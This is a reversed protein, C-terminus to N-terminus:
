LAFVLACLTHKLQVPYSIEQFEQMGYFVFTVHSFSKTTKVSQFTKGVLKTLAM